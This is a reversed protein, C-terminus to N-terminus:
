QQCAPSDGGKFLYNLLYVVDAIDVINDGNVEGCIFAPLAYHGCLPAFDFAGEQELVACHLAAPNELDSLNVGVVYTDTDSPLDLYALPTPDSWDFDGLGPNWPYTANWIAATLAIAYDIGMCTWQGILESEGTTSSLDADVFILESLLDPSTWSRYHDVKFYLIDSHLQAYVAEINYGDGEDPDTGLLTWDEPPQDKPPITGVSPIEQCEPSPGGKYLYSILYVVDGLDMIADGNPNGCPPPPFTFNGCDPVWDMMTEGESATCYFAEPNGLDSLYVGVVLVNTHNPVDLYALSIPNAYDFDGLDPDWALMMNYYSGVALLYDAGMGTCHEPMESMGTASNQDADVFILDFVDDSTSWNRHHKVKFYLIDSHIQAYVAKLDTGIGEDPDTGLLTWSEPPQSQPQITNVVPGRGTAQLHLLWSIKAERSEEEFFELDLSHACLASGFIGFLFVALVLISNRPLM